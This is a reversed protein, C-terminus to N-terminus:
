IDTIAEGGLREQGKDTTRFVGRGGGGGKRRDTCGEQRLLSCIHVPTHTRTHAHMHTHRTHPSSEPSPTICPPTSYSCPARSTKSLRPYTKLSCRRYLMDASIVCISLFHIHIPYIYLVYLDLMDTSIVCRHERLSRAHYVCLPSNTHSPSLCFSLVSQCLSLSLSLLLPFLTSKKRM